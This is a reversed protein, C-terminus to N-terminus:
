PPERTCRGALAGAPPEYYFRGQGNSDTYVKTPVKFGAFTPDQGFNAIQSLTHSSMGIENGHYLETFITYFIDYNRTFSYTTYEAGNRGITFENSDMNVYFSIVGGSGYNVTYDTNFTGVAAGNVFFSPNGVNFRKSYGHFDANPSTFLMYDSENKLARGSGLNADCIGFSVRSNNPVTGEEYLEWYYTGSNPLTFTSVAKRIVGLGTSSFKLNGESTTGNNSLENWTAFNNIPTDPRVDYNSFAM